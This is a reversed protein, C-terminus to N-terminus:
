ITQRPAVGGPCMESIGGCVQRWDSTNRSICTRLCVQCYNTKCSPCQMHKCATGHEHVTSCNPCARFSPVDKLVGSIVKTPCQKLWGNFVEKKQSCSANGCFEPINPHGKWVLLCKWCRDVKKARPCQVCRVRNTKLSEDKYMYNKCEPCVKIMESSAAIFKNSMDVEFEKKEELDLEALDRFVQYPIEVGCKQVKDSNNKVYQPAECTIALHKGGSFSRIASKGMHKLSRKSIVHGCRLIICYNVEDPVMEVFCPISNTFEYLHGNVVKTKVHERVLVRIGDNEKVALNKLPTHGIVPMEDKGLFVRIQGFPIGKLNAYKEVLTRLSCRALDVDKMETVQQDDNDRQIFVSCTKGGGGLGFWSSFLDM